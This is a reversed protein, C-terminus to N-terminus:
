PRERWPRAWSELTAAPDSEPDPRGTERNEPPPLRAAGKELAARAVRGADHPFNGDRIDELAERYVRVDDLLCAPAFCDPATCPAHPAVQRGDDDLPWLCRDPGDPSPPIERGDDLTASLEFGMAEAIGHARVLCFGCMRTAQGPWFVIMVSLRDCSKTGCKLPGSPLDVTEPESM